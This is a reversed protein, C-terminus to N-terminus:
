VASHTAGGENYIEPICTTTAISQSLLKKSITKPKKICKSYKLKANNKDDIQIM